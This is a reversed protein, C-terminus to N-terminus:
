PACRLVVATINDPGGAGLACQILSDAAADVSASASALARALADDGVVGHLGDTSLLLVDGPELAVDAVDVDLGNPSGLARTLAHRLDHARIAEASAGARAMSVAWSDDETL